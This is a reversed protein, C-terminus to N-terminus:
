KHATPPGTHKEWQVMGERLGIWAETHAHGERVAANPSGTYSM